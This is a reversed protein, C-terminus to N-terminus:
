FSVLHQISRHAYAEAMARERMAVAVGIISDLVARLKSYDYRAKVASQKLFSRAYHEARGSLCGGKSHLEVVSGACRSALGSLM